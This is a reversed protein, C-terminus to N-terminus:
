RVWPADAPRLGSLGTARAAQLALLGAVASPNHLAGVLVLAVADALPVWRLEMGAEEGERTFTGGEPVDSLDRALFIRLAEDSGGPSTYYDVLTDWRAAQLDAEEALERAAADVLPEDAVDLLGAPVEWLYSRVPHRYQRLLLVRDETDLAVVAVAGPHKMFERHVAGADGLDVTEAVIDFVRGSHITRSDTVPLAAPEDAVPGPLLVPVPDPRTGGDPM